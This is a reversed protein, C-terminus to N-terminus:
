LNTPSGIPRLRNSGVPLIDYYKWPFRPDTKTNLEEDNAILYYYLIDEPQQEDPEIRKVTCVIKIEPNIWDELECITGPKLIAVNHEETIRKIIDAYNELEM